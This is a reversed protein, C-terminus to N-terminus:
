RSGLLALSYARYATQPPSSVNCSHASSVVVAAVSVKILIFVPRRCTCSCPWCAAASSPWATQIITSLRDNGHTSRTSQCGAFYTCIITWLARDYDTTPRCRPRIQRERRQSLVNSLRDINGVYMKDHDCIRKVTYRLYCSLPNFCDNILSPRKALLKITRISTYVVNSSHVYVIRMALMM